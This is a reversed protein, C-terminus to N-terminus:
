CRDRDESVVTGGIRMSQDFDLLKGELVPVPVQGVGFKRGCRQYFEQAFSVSSFSYFLNIGIAGAFVTRSKTGRVPVRLIKAGNVFLSVGGREDVAEEFRKAAAQDPAFGSDHELVPAFEEGEVRGM